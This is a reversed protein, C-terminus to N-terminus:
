RTVYGTDSDILEHIKHVSLENVITMNEKTISANRAPGSADGGFL